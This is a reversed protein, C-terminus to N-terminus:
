LNALRGLLETGGRAVCHVEFIGPHTHAVLSHPLADLLHMRGVLPLEPLLCNQGEYSEHRQRDSLIWDPKGRLQKMRDPRVGRVALPLEM